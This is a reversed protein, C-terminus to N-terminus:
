LLTGSLAQNARYQGIVKWKVQRSPLSEVFVTIQWIKMPRGIAGTGVRVLKTSPNVWDPYDKCEATWAM